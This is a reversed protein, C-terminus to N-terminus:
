PDTSYFTDNRESRQWSPMSGAGDKWVFAATPSVIAVRIWVENVRLGKSIIRRISRLIKYCM